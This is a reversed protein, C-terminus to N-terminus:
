TPRRLGCSAATRMMTLIPGSVRSLELLHNLPRTTFGSSHCGGTTAWQPGFFALAPLRARHADETKMQRKSFPTVRNTVGPEELDLPDVRPRHQFTLEKTTRDQFTKPSTGTASAMLFAVVVARKGIWENKTLVFVPCEPDSRTRPLLKRPHLTAVYRRKVQFDPSLLQLREVLAVCSPQLM